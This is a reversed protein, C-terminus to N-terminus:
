ELFRGLEPMWDGFFVTDQCVSKWVRPLFARLKEMVMDWDPEKKRRRRLYKEYRKRMYTYNKYAIITDVREKELPIQAKRCRTELMERIHRGDVAETSLIKYVKEYYKMEPLLEMQNIISFLMEALMNEVPYELYSIKQNKEMFLPIERPIPIMEEGEYERIRIHLPVTMEEFEGTVEFEMVGDTFSARGMWKVEPIKEKKLICALMIYGMKLSLKQGPLFTGRKIIVEDTVYAFELTLLNKRCYQEVGFINDNKLWLYPAFESDSILYMFNELVFGALLNSFPIGLEESKEKLATKDIIKHKM